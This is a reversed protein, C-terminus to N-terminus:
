RLHQRASADRRAQGAASAVVGRRRGVALQAILGASAGILLMLVNVGLTVLAETTNTTQRLGISAGIYAAAPITTVSIAVGVAAGAKTEFAFMGAVGAAFAIIIIMLSYSAVAEVPAIPLQYGDPLQNTVRLFSSTIQAALTTFAYGIVLTMLGRSVLRWRRGVLGVSTATVPTLDPALAMAGVILVANETMVGFAAIIGAIAMFVAYKASFRANTRAQNIVASWVLAENQPALWSREGAEITPVTESQLVDIEGSHVGADILRRMVHDTMAPTLEATILTKSGDFTPGVVVVHRAGDVSQLLSGIEQAREQEVFVRMQLM